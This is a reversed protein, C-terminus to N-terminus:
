RTEGLDNMYATSRIDDWKPLIDANRIYRNQISNVRM